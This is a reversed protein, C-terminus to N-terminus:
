GRLSQGVDRISDLLVGDQRFQQVLGVVKLRLDHLTGDNSLEVDFGDFTAAFQESVHPSASAHNSRNIRWMEGGLGKLMAFENAFRVDTFVFKGHKPLLRAAKKVWYDPDQSRRYETGHCQLVVRMDESTPKEWPDLELAICLLLADVAQEPYDAPIEQDLILSDVENRLASAFSRKEYGFEGVLIDAVADKGSGMMGSLGIITRM